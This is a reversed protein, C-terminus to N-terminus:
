KKASFGPLPILTIHILITKLFDCVCSAFNRENRKLTLLFSSLFTLILPVYEAKAQAPLLTSM